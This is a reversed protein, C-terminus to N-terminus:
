EIDVENQDRIFSLLEGLLLCSTTLKDGAEM